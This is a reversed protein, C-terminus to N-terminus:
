LIFDQSTRLVVARAFIQYYEAVELLDPHRGRARWWFALELAGDLLTYVLISLSSGEFHSNSDVSPV